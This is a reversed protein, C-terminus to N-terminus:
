FSNYVITFAARNVIWYSIGEIVYQKWNKKGQTIKISLAGAIFLHEAFRSLHWGDSVAVFVTSSGLFREGNERKGGKWKNQYSKSPWWYNQSATPFAKKFEHWKFSIVNNIADSAGALIMLSAPAIQKKLDTFHVKQGRGTILLAIFLITLLLPKM